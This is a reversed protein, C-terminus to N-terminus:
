GHLEPPDFQGAKIGAVFASWEERTAAIKYIPETNNWLFIKDDFFEVEICAGSECFSSRKWTHTQDTM